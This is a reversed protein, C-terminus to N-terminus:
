QGLKQRERRIFIALLLVTIGGFVWLARRQMEDALNGPGIMQVILWDFGMLVAGLCGAAELILGVYYGASPRSLEYREPHRAVRMGRIAFLAFLAAGLYAALSDLQFFSPKTLGVWVFYVSIAASTVSMAIAGQRNATTVSEGKRMEPFSALGRRPTVSFLVDHASFLSM